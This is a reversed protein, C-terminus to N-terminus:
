KEVQAAGRPASCTVCQACRRHGVSMRMIRSSSFSFVATEPACFYHIQARQGGSRPAYVRRNLPGGSIIMKACDEGATCERQRHLSSKVRLVNRSLPEAARRSPPKRSGTSPAHGGRVGLTSRSHLCLGAGHKDVVGGGGGGGQVGDGAARAAVRAATGAAATGVAEQPPPDAVAAAAM